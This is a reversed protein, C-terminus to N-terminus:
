SSTTGSVLARLRESLAGPVSFDRERAEDFITYSAEPTRFLPSFVATTRLNSPTKGPYDPQACAPYREVLYDATDGAAMAIAYGLVSTGDAVERVDEGSSVLWDIIPKNSSNRSAHFLPPAEPDCTRDKPDCGHSASLHQALDLCGNRVFALFADHLEDDPPRERRIAADLARRGIALTATDPGAADATCDACRMVLRSVVFGHWNDRLEEEVEDPDMDGDADLFSRLLELDEM